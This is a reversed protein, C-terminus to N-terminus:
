QKEQSESSHNEGTDGNEIKEESSVANDDTNELREITVEVEDGMRVFDETTAKWPKMDDAKIRLEEDINEIETEGGFLRNSFLYNELSSRTTKWKSSAITFKDSITIARVRGKVLTVSGLEEGTLPDKVVEPEGLIGFISNETIGHVKGLNIVVTSSDIIRIIRGRIKEKIRQGM